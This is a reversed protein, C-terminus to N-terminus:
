AVHERCYLSLYSEAIRDIAFLKDVRRRARAGMEGARSPDGLVALIRGGLDDENGPAVLHGSTGPEIVDESGSVRTAVVPLGVAMAELLTNSLGEVASPLVFCDAAQLYPVVDEVRGHFVIGAALGLSKALDELSAQAPGDGVIDLLARPEKEAVTRWAHLLTPLSKVPDLRGVFVVRPQDSAMGLRDRAERRSGAVFRKTDVGNPLYHIRAAPVGAQRMAGELARSVAVWVDARRLVPLALRVVPQRRRRPDLVGRELEWWGVAKLIVRKGLLRSVVTAALALYSVTHVHVVDYRRSRRLLFAALHLTAGLTALYRIRPFTLRHVPVGDIVEEILLSPLRRTTVVEVVSGLGRLTRALLALQRETGGYDPLYRETVMIVRPARREGLM